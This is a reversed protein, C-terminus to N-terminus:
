KVLFYPNLLNEKNYTLPTETGFITISKGAALAVAHAAAVDWEITPGLRPYEDADGKAVMCIKLSSGKSVIEVEKHTQRLQELHEETESNLHSRSAVVKYTKNKGPSPLPIGAANEKVTDTSIDVTPNKLIWAGEGEIGVYLEELDPAYVVGFVPKGKEILAINVTFEGNKKIFEKTGDLPDVLWFRKWHKREDYPISKGEESLLPIATSKLAQAIVQHAARDALTLPSQDDKHTVGFDSTRYIEMIKLGAEISAGIAIDYINKESM